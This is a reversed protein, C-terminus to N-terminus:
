ISIVACVCVCFTEWSAKFDMVYLALSIIVIIMRTISASLHYGHFIIVQTIYFFWSM